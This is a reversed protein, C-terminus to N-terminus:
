VTLLHIFVDFSALLCLCSCLYQVFVSFEAGYLAVSVVGSTM